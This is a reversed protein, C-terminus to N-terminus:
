PNGGTSGPALASAVDLEWLHYVLGSADAQFSGVYAGADEPITEGTWFFAFLRLTPTLDPDVLAYVVPGEDRLTVLGLIRAGAPMEISLASLAIHVPYKFIRKM